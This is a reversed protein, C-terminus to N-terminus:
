SRVEVDVAAALIVNRDVVGVFDGLGLGAVVCPQGFKPEVARKQLEVALLHGLRAAIEQAEFGEDFLSEVGEGVSKEAEPRAVAGLEGERPFTEATCGRGEVPQAGGGM